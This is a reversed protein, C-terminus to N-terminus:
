KPGDTKEMNEDRELKRERNLVFDNDRLVQLARIAENPSLVQVLEWIDAKVGGYKKYIILDLHEREDLEMKREIFSAEAHSINVIELAKNSIYRFNLEADSLKNEIHMKSRTLNKLKIAEDCDSNVDYYADLGPKAKKIESEIITLESKLEEVINKFNDLNTLERGKELLVTHVSVLFRLPLKQSRRGSLMRSVSSNDFGTKDSLFKVRGHKIIGMDDLLEGLEEPSVDDGNTMRKNLNYINLRRKEM